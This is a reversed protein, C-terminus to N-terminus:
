ADQERRFRKITVVCWISYVIIAVTVVAQNTIEAGAHCDVIMQHSEEDWGAGIGCDFFNYLVIGLVVLWYAVSTLIPRKSM